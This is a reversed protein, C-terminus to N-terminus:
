LGRHAGLRALDDWNSFSGRGILPLQNDFLRMGPHQDSGDQM